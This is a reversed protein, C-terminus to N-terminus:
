GTFNHWWPVLAQHSKKEMDHYMSLFTFWSLFVRTSQHIYPSVSGPTNPIIVHFFFTVLCQYRPPMIKCALKICVFYNTVIQTLDQLKVLPVERSRKPQQTAVVGQV